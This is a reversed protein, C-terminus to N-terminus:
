AESGKNCSWIVICMPMWLGRDFGKFAVEGRIFRVTAIDQICDHWWGTNTRAPILAVVTSGNKWESHAKRVWKQMVRGYPPNMWCIEGAWSQKLGDENKTFHRSCKANESTSAVDLTFQFEENLPMWISDPTEYEISKANFWSQDVRRKNGIKSVESIM